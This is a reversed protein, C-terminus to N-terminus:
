RRGSLIAHAEEPTFPYDYSYIHYELGDEHYIVSRYLGSGSYLFFPAAHGVLSGDGAISYVASPEEPVSITITLQAEDGRVFRTRYMESYEYVDVSELDFGEPLWTFEPVAYPLDDVTYEEEAAYFADYAASYMADYAAIAGNVAADNMLVEADGMMGMAAMMLGASGSDTEPDIAIAGATSLPAVDAPAADATFTFKVPELYESDHAYAVDGHFSGDAASIGDLSLTETYAASYFSEGSASVDNEYRLSIACGDQQAPSVSISLATYDDGSVALAFANGARDLCLFGRTFDFGFDVVLIEDEFPIDSGSLFHLPGAPALRQDSELSPSACVSAVGATLIAPSYAKRNFLRTSGDAATLLYGNGVPEVAFLETNEPFVDGLTAPSVSPYEDSDFYDEDAISYVYHAFAAHIEPGCLALRQDFWGTLADSDLAYTEGARADLQEMFSFALECPNLVTSAGAAAPLLSLYAALFMDMRYVSSEGLKLFLGDQALRMSVPFLEREGYQMVFGADLADSGLAFDLDASMDFSFASDGIGMQANSVTLRFGAPSAGEALASPVLLAWIVLFAFFRKM